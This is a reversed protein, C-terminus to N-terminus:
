FKAILKVSGRSEGTYTYKYFAKKFESSLILKEEWLNTSINEFKGSVTSFMQLSKIQRPIQFQQPTSKTHPTLTFEGTSMNDSWRILPQDSLEGSKETSAYWPYTGNIYIPDSQVKGQPLPKGCDNGKNDEPQPGSNYYAIYIYGTNGEGVVTPLTDNGLCVIISENTESGGRNAQKVGNINISGPNYKGIFNTRLPANSGVLQINDYNYLEITASPNIYTPYVTPFLIGDFLQDYTRGEIDSVQTGIKFDGHNEVMAINKDSIQSKYINNSLNINESSGDTYIITLSNGELKISSVIKDSQQLGSYSQNNHIIEQTDTTFYIGDGHIKYEYSSKFGRYFKIM